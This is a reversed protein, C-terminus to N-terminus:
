AGQSGRRLDACQMGKRSAQTCHVRLQEVRWNISKQPSHSVGSESAQLCGKKHMTTKDNLCVLWWWHCPHTKIPQPGPLSAGLPWLIIGQVRHQSLQPYIPGSWVPRAKFGPREIILSLAEVKLREDSLNIDGLTYLRYVLCVSWVGVLWSDYSFKFFRKPVCASNGNFSLEFKNMLYTHKNINCLYNFRPQITSLHELCLMKLTKLQGNKSKLIM